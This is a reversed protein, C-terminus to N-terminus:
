SQMRSAIKAAVLGFALVIGGGLVLTAELPLDLARAVGLFWMGVGVAVTVFALAIIINIVKELAERTSM